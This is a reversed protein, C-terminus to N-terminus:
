PGPKTPNVTPTIKMATEMMNVNFSFVVKPEGKKSIDFILSLRIVGEETICLFGFQIGNSYFGKTRYNVKKARCCNERLITLYATLQTEGKSFESRQKTEMANLLSREDGMLKYWLAWDAKETILFEVSQKKIHILVNSELFLMFSRQLVKSIGGKSLSPLASERPLLFLKNM